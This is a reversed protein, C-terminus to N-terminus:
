STTSAAVCDFSEGSGNRMSCGFGLSIFRRVGGGLRLFFGEAIARPRKPALLPPFALACFREGCFRLWIALFAAAARQDGFAFRMSVILGSMIESALSDRPKVCVSSAFRREM